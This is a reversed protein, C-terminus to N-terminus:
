SRAGQEAPDAAALADVDADIGQARVALRLHALRPAPIGNKRWSHITSPPTEALRSVATTGGLADIIRNAVVNM